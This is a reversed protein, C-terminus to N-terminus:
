LVIERSEMAAGAQGASEREGFLLEVIMLSHIVIVDGVIIIIIMIM